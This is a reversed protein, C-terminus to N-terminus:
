RKSENLANMFRDKSEKNRFSIKIDAFSKVVEIKIDAFSKVIQIKGCEDDEWSTNVVDVIVDAFSEVIEVKLDAFSNVIEVRGKLPCDSNSAVVISNNELNDNDAFTSFSLCLISFFLVVIYRM